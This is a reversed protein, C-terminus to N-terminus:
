QPELETRVSDVHSALANTSRSPREHSPQGVLACLATVAEHEVRDHSVASRSVFAAAVCHRGISHFACCCSVAQCRNPAAQMVRATLRQVRAATDPGVKVRMKPPSPRRRTLPPAPSLSSRGEPPAPTQPTRSVREASCSRLLLASARALAMRRPASSTDGSGSSSTRGENSSAGAALHTLTEIAVALVEALEAATWQAPMAAPAAVAAAVASGLSAYPRSVSSGPDGLPGPLQPQPSISSRRGSTSRSTARLDTVAELAQASSTDALCPPLLHQRGVGTWDM